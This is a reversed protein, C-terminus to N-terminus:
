DSPREECYGGEHIELVAIAFKHADHECMVHQLVWRVEM